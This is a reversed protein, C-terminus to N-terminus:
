SCECWPQWQLSSPLVLVLPCIFGLRLLAWAVTCLMFHPPKQILSKSLLLRVLQMADRLASLCLRTLRSASPVEAFSAEIRHMSNGVGETM